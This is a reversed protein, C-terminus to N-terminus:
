EMVEVISYEEPVPKSLRHKRAEHRTPHWKWLQSKNNVTIAGYYPVRTLFLLEERLSLAQVWEDLDDNPDIGRERLAGELADEFDM